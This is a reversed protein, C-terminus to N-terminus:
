SKTGRKYSFLCFAKFKLGLPDQSGPSQEPGRQAAGSVKTIPELEASAM